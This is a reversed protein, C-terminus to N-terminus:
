VKSVEEVSRLGHAFDMKEPLKANRLVAGAFQDTTLNYTSSLDVSTLDTDALSTGYLDVDVFVIKRLDRKRFVQGLETLHEEQFIARSGTEGKKELWKEHEELKARVSNEDTHSSPSINAASM